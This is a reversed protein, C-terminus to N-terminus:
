VGRYMRWWWWWCKFGLCERICHAQDRALFINPFMTSKALDRRWVLKGTEVEVPYFRDGWACLGDWKLDSSRRSRCFIWLSRSVECFLFIEM